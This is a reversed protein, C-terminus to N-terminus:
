ARPSRRSCASCAPASRSAFGALVGGAALATAGFLVLAGDRAIRLAAAVAPSGGASRVLWRGGETFLLAFLLARGAMGVQAARADDLPVLRLAPRM